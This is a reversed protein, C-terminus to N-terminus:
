SAADGCGAAARRPQNAGGGGHDAEGRRINGASGDVVARRCVGVSRRARRREVADGFREGDRSSVAHREPKRELASTQQEVSRLLEAAAAAQEEAASSIIEAGKQAERAAVEAQVTAAAISQSAETLAGVDKRLEGLALIVTQSNEAEAAAGDAAAKIMSAVSKVQEQIQGALNQTERASKESTEALARVEDAVVAFGRGHDGARAAEIAANLALLNTQDSVHGVTKTVDGISAAQQSLQEIISISGAQREGNHKINNAWAGIQNSTDALLAQLTETRRRALEAQDRAQVLTAAATTAVALAEQSQRCSSTKMPYDARTGFAGANRPCIDGSPAGSTVKAILVCLTVFRVSCECCGDAIPQAAPM